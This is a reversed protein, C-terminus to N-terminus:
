NIKTMKSRLEAPVDEILVISISGDTASNNHATDEGLTATINEPSLNYMQGNLPDVIFWGILGGFIFNGAIYWGNPSSTVPITQTKYGPKTITVNYNKGGWYSGNSKQLTVSTPTTGKFVEQGKEDTIVISAGDPSSGIPMVHLPNGVITACGGLVITLVLGVVGLMKTKMIYKEQERVDLFPGKARAVGFSRIDLRVLPPTLRLGREWKALAQCLTTAVHVWM